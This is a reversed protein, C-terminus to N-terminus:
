DERALRKCISRLADATVFVREAAVVARVNAAVAPLARVGKLNGVARALEQPVGGGREGAGGGGLFLYRARPSRGGPETCGHAALAAVAAKTKGSPLALDSVVVLRRERYKGALAVRLGLRRVRKQLRVGWPRGKPPHAVGGGVWLPSRISGQRAKGTGKQAWPKRGGGAVESRKKAKFRLKRSNKDQWQVVRHLVDRRAPTAFVHDPLAITDGTPEGTTLSLIPLSKNPAGLPM